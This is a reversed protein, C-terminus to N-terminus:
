IDTRVGWDECEEPLVTVSVRALCDEEAAACLPDAAGTFVM